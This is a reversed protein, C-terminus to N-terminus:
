ILIGLLTKNIIEIPSHNSKEQYCSVSTENSAPLQHFDSGVKDSNGRKGSGVKGTNESLTYLFNM